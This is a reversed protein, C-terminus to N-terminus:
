RCSQEHSVILENLCDCLCSLSMSRVVTYEIGFMYKPAYYIKISLFIVSSLICGSLLKCCLSLEDTLASELGYNLANHTTDCSLFMCFLHYIHSGFLLLCDLDCNM